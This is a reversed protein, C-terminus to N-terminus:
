LEFWGEVGSLVNDNADDRWIGEHDLYGLCRFGKAVVIVRFGASPLEDAHEV